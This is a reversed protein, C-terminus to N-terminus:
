ASASIGALGPEAPSPLLLWYREADAAGRIQKAYELALASFREAAGLEADDLLTLVDRLPPAAGPAPEHRLEDARQRGFLFRLLSARAAVPAAPPLRAGVQALRVRVAGPVFAAPRDEYLMVDREAKPGFVRLSAEHALRHDVEGGVGLPFYVHRAQSRRGVDDLIRAVRELYPEDQPDQGFARASASRYAESRERAGPLGCQYVDVNLRALTASSPAPRDEASSAFIPLLLIRLGRAADSGIRGRCSLLVDTTQPGVYVCDYRGLDELSTIRL